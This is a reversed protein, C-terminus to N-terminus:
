LGLESHVSSEKAALRAKEDPLADWAKKLHTFVTGRSNGVQVTVQTVGLAKAGNLAMTLKGRSPSRLAGEVLRKAKRMDEVSVPLKAPGTKGNVGKPQDRPPTGVAHGEKEGEGPAGDATNRSSSADAQAEGPYTLPPGDPGRGDQALGTREAADVGGGIYAAFIDATEVFSKASVQEGSLFTATAQIAAIRIEQINM